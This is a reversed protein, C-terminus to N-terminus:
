EKLLEQVEVDFSLALKALTQFQINKMEGNNRTIRSITTESINTLDSVQHNKLNNVAMLVRVNRSFAASIQSSKGEYNNIKETNM